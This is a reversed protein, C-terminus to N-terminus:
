LESVIYVKNQDVTVFGDNVEISETSGDSTEIRVTGAKLLAMMPTHRPLVGVEGEKSPFVVSYSEGHWIPGSRAVVTVDMM